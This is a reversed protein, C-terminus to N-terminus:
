NGVGGIIVEKGDVFMIKETVIGNKDFMLCMGHGQGEINLNSIAKISGEEYFSMKIIGMSDVVIRLSAYNGSEYFHISYSSEDNSDSRVMEIIQGNAYYMDKGLLIERTKGDFENTQFYSIEYNGNSYIFTDGEMKLEYNPVLTQVLHTQAGASHRLILSFILVGFILITDKM